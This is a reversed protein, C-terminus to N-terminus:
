PCRQMEMFYKSQSALSYSSGDVRLCCFFLRPSAGITEGFEICPLYNDNRKTQGTIRSPIRSLLCSMTLTSAALASHSIILHSQRDTQRDRQRDCEKLNNRRKQKEISDLWKPRWKERHGEVFYFMSHGLMASVFLQFSMKCYQKMLCELTFM